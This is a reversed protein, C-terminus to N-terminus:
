CANSNMPKSILLTKFFLVLTVALIPSMVLTSAFLAGLVLFLTFFHWSSKTMHRM